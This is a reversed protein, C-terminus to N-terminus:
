ILVPKFQKLDVYNGPNIRVKEIIKASLEAAKPSCHIDAILPVDYGKVKLLNKIDKLKEAVRTTQVTLRLYDAGADAIEIIQNVTAEVDSTDTNTM